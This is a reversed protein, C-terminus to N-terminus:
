EIIIFSGHLAQTNNSKVTRIFRTNIKENSVKMMVLVRIFNFCTFKMILQLTNRRDYAPYIGIPFYLSDNQLIVIM